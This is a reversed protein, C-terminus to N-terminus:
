LSHVLGRNAILSLASEDNSAYWLGAYDMILLKNACLYFSHTPEKFVYYGDLWIPELQERFLEQKLDAQIAGVFRSSFMLEQLCFTVLFHQLSNCVREHGKVTDDWLAAANCYVPSDDNGEEVECTWNGQNETIFSIRGQSRITNEVSMLTDQIQFIAPEGNAPSKKRSSRSNAPWNGAFLYLDRLPKPFYSPVEEEQLGYEPLVPGAWDEVFLKLNELSDKDDKILM